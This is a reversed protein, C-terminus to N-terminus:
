FHYNYKEIIFKEYKEVLNISENNYYIRYDENRSSKNTKEKFGELIIKLKEQSFNLDKANEFLDEHLSETRIIINVFNKNIDYMKLDKLSQVDHFKERYTYLSLYRYTLLGSFQSIKNTKFNEGIDHKKRSLLLSLWINFNKYNNVDSYLQKWLEPDMKSFGINLNKKIIKKIGKKTFLNTRRTLRNYLAGKQGCGYAWMSVYWDWPNRVNGVKIKNEFDGILEPSISDYTNHQGIIKCNSSFIEALIQQTHSCGTKQLELYIFKDTILMNDITTQSKGIVLPYLCM